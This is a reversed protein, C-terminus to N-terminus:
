EQSKAAKEKEAKEAMERPYHKNYTRLWSGYIGVQWDDRRPETLYTEYGTYPQSREYDSMRDFDGRCQKIEPIFQIGYSQCWKWVGGFAGMLLATYIGARANQNRYSMILGPGVGALVYNLEDDAGRVTTLFWITSAWAAGGLMGVGIHKPALAAIKKASNVQSIHIVDTMWTAFGGIFGTKAAVLNKYIFHTGDPYKDYPWKRSQLGYNGTLFETDWRRNYRIQDKLNEYWEFM